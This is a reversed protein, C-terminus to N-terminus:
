GKRTVWSIISQSGAAVCPQLLLWPSGPLAPARILVLIPGQSGAGAHLCSAGRPIPCAALALEPGRWAPFGAGLGEAADGKVGQRSPVTVLGMQPPSVSTGLAEMWDRSAEPTCGAQGRPRGAERALGGDTVAVWERALSVGSGGQGGAKRQAEPHVDQFVWLKDKVDLLRVVDIGAERDDSLGENVGAGDRVQLQALDAATPLSGLATPGASKRPPCGSSSLHPTFPTMLRPNERFRAGVTVFELAAAAEATGLV